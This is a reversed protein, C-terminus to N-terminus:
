ALALRREAMTVANCLAVGLVALAAARRSSPQMAQRALCLTSAMPPPWCTKRGANRSKRAPYSSKQREKRGYSKLLVLCLASLWEQADAVFTLRQTSRCSAERAVSDRSHAGCDQHSM